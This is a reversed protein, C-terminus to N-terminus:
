MGYKKRVEQGLEEQVVSPEKDSFVVSEMTKTNILIVSFRQYIFIDVLGMAEKSIGKRDPDISGIFYNGVKEFMVGCNDPRFDIPCDEIQRYACDFVKCDEPINDWIKCGVGIECERCYEHRPSSMWGISLLKCCLTCGNCEM